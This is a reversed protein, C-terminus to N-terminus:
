HAPALARAVRDILSNQLDSPPGESSAVTRMMELLEAVERGSCAGRLPDILKTLRNGADSTEALAHRAFGYLEDAEAASVGFAQRMQGLILEKQGATIEGEYAALQALLIAAAERPDTLNDIVRKDAKRSWSYRRAAGKAEDMANALRVIAWILGALALIGGIILHM